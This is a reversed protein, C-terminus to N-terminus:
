VTQTKQVAILKRTGESQKAQSQKFQEWQEPPATQKFLENNTVIESFGKAKAHMTKLNQALKIGGAGGVLATLGLGIELIADMTGGVDPRQNADDIAQNNITEFQDPDPAQKPRGTYNLSAETGAVLQKSASSQPDTGDVNVKRALQNTLEANAKINQSPAFRLGMETCGGCTFLFIFLTVLAMISLTLIIRKMRKSRVIKERQKWMSKPIQGCLCCRVCRKEGPYCKWLHLGLTLINCILKNRKM